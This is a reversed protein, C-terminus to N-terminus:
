ICKIIGKFDKAILCLMFTDMAVGNLPKGNEVDGQFRNSRNNNEDVGANSTLLRCKRFFDLFCNRPILLRVFSHALVGSETQLNSRIERVLSYKVTGCTWTRENNALECSGFGYKDSVEHARQKHCPKHAESVMKQACNSLMGKSM